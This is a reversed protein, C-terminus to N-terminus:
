HNKKYYEIAKLATDWTGYEEILADIYESQKEGSSNLYSKILVNQEKRQADVASKAKTQSGYYVTLEEMAKEYTGYDEVNEANIWQRITKKARNDMATKINKDKKGNDKFYQYISKYDKGNSGQELLVNYLMDFDYIAGDFLEEEITEAPDNVINTGIDSIRSNAFKEADTLGVKNVDIAKNIAAKADALSFGMKAIEGVTISYSGMKGETYYQAAESVEPIKEVMIARYGSQIKSETYGDAYLQNYIDTFEDKNGDLMSEVMDEFAPNEYDPVEIKEDTNKNFVKNVFDVIPSKRAEQETEMALKVAAKIDEHDFGMDILERCVSYYNSEDGNMLYEAAEAVEPISKAITARYGNTITTKKYGAAILDEYMQSLKASDGAKVVSIMEEYPIGADAGAALLNNYIAYINKKITTGPVGFIDALYGALNSFKEIPTKKDSTLQDWANILRSINTLDMREVDYGEFMSVIDKVYPVMSGADSILNEFVDTVYNEYYKDEDDWKYFSSILSKLLTNLTMALIVSGIKRAAQKKNGNIVDNKTSMLMNIAITPESMFAMEMKMLSNQSRLNGSRQFTSDYVQTHRIVDNFLETVAGFFEESENKYKSQSRIQAKCTNWIASWTIQDMLGPLFFGVQELQERSLSRTEKHKLNEFFMKFREAFSTEGYMMEYMLSTGAMTDYGSNNKIRALASYKMMEEYGKKSAARTKSIGLYSYARGIASPQQIACSISLSVAATKMNRLLSDSLASTPDTRYGGNLDEMLKMIYRDYDEGYREKLLGKVTNAGNKYNYVRMFDNLAPASAAYVSMGTVHDIWVDMFNSIIVPANSGLTVHKTFSSNKAQKSQQKDISSALYNDDVKMPFYYDENFIDYNYMKRSAENGVAALDRSLYEIMADAFQKQEDTLMDSIKEIDAADVKVAINQASDRTLPDKKNKMKEKLKDFFKEDASKLTIGGNLLHSTETLSGTNGKERKAIAYLSMAEFLEIQVRQGHLDFEKSPTDFAWKDFHYKKMISNAAKVAANVIDSQKEETMMVNKYLKNLTGGINEFFYIPMMQNVALTSHLSQLKTGYTISKKEDTALLEDIITQGYEDRTRDLEDSFMKNSNTILGKFHEIASKLLKLEDTTMESITKNGNNTIYRLSNIYEIIEDDVLTNGSSAEVKKMDELRDRMNTLRDHIDKIKLNLKSEPFRDNAFNVLELVDVFAKKFDTPVGMKDARSGNLLKLSNSYLKKLQDVVQRREAGARLEAKKEEIKRYALERYQAVQTDKEKAYEIFRDNQNIRQKKFRELAGYYLAAVRISEKTGYLDNVATAITYYLEGGLIRAAEASSMGMEGSDYMNRVRVSTADLFAAINEFQESPSSTEPFFDPYNNNLEDYFEDIDRVSESRQNPDTTIHFRRNALAAVQRIDETGMDLRNVYFKRKMIDKRLDKYETNLSDDRVDSKEIVQKAISFCAEQLSNVDPNEQRIYDVLAELRDALDKRSMNSNYRKLFAGATKQFAAKSLERGQVIKHLNETMDEAIDSVEKDFANGEISGIVEVEKLAEDDILYRIDSNKEDFRKSLPIMKGSDDYTVENLKVNNETNKYIENSNGNDYGFEHISNGDTFLYKAPVKNEIIRYDDDFMRWGHEEAYEKDIAVWDGNRVRSDKISNPVARYISILTDPSNRAKKIAAIAKQDYSRGDGYYYAARASYISGDGGYCRDIDTICVDYKANPAKHDMRWSTDSDYGRESAKKSLIGSVDEGRMVALRYAEDEVAVNKSKLQENDLLESPIYKYFNGYEPNIKEILQPISIESFLRTNQWQEDTKQNEAVQVKVKNEIKIKGLTISVYLKNPDKVNENFERIHFEVPIIYEGDSFASLLVYDYKLNPNARETGDYKDTHVEIPVANKVVDDFVYLMKAFDYFDTSIDGQKHVSENLSGRSYNFELNINDNSYKKFVDFKEGLTKLIRGAESNYSSKLLIVSKGNLENDGKYQVITIKTKELVDAREVESMGPYIATTKGLSYKPASSVEGDAFVVDERDIDPRINKRKDADYNMRKSVDRAEIEGATKRYSDMPSDKEITSLEQYARERANSYDWFADLLFEDKIQTAAKDYAKYYESDTLGEYMTESNYEAIVDTIDENSISMQEKLRKEAEALKRQSLTEYKANKDYEYFDPNAGAALGEIDQIAHQIEHLLVEKLMNKNLVIDQNIVIENMISDYWGGANGTDKKYTILLDALQPYATFLEHHEILDGLLRPKIDVGEFSDFLQKFENREESTASDEFYIKNLLEQYKRIDPNRSYLGATSIKMKSDDIEFRWKNDYGRFWGTQQRIEESTLEGASELKVAEAYKSLNSNKAKRSAFSYKPAVKEEGDSQATNKNEANEVTSEGTRLMNEVLDVGQQFNNQQKIMERLLGARENSVHADISEKIKDLFRKLADLVKEVLSRDNEIAESVFGTDTFFLEMSDAAIEDMISMDLMNPAVQRYTLKLNGLIESYRDPNKRVNEIVFRKYNKYQEPATEQLHHCLEHTFVTVAQKSFKASLYITGNDYYGKPTFGSVELIPNFQVNVGLKKAIIDIFDVADSNVNLDNVARERNTVGGKKVVRSPNKSEASHADLMGEALAYQKIDAILKSDLKGDFVTQHVDNVNAAGLTGATYYEDFLDRVTQENDETTRNILSELSNNAHDSYIRKSEAETDTIINKEAREKESPLDQVPTESENDAAVTEAEPVSEDQYQRLRQSQEAYGSMAATAWSPEVETNIDEGFYKNYLQSYASNLESMVQSAVPDSEVQRIEQRSVEQNHSIRSIIDSLAAAAYENVGNERLRENVAAQVVESSQSTLEESVANFLRGTAYNSRINAFRQGLSPKQTKVGVAEATEAIAENVASNNYKEETAQEGQAEVTQDVSMGQNGFTSKDYLQQAKGTKIEPSLAEADNILYRTNGFQNIARGTEYTDAFTGSTAVAGMGVGSIGGALFASADESLADLLALSSAERKSKGAAIYNNYAALIDSKDGNVIVDVLRNLMNSATEETGEALFSKGLTGLISKPDKLIADISFKETVGEILGSIVGLSVAKIDSYGKEKGEIISQTAVESGVILSTMGSIWKNVNGGSISAGTSGLAKGLAMNLANDLASTLIDYANVNISFKENGIAHDATIWSDQNSNKVTERITSSILSPYYAANNTDIENGTLTSVVADLSGFAAMPALAVSYLTGIAANVNSKATWDSLGQLLEQTNETKHAAYLSDFDYGKKIWKDRIARADSSASIAAENTSTSDRLQINFNYNELDAKLENDAEIMEAYRGQLVNKYNLLDDILDNEKSQDSKYKDYSAASQGAQGTIVSVAFELGSRMKNKSQTNTKESQSKIYEELEPVTMFYARNDKLWNYEYDDDASRHGYTSDFASLAADIDSVAKGEYKKYMSYDRFHDVNAFQSYFSNYNNVDSSLDILNNYSLDVGNRITSYDDGFVNQNADLLDLLEKAKKKYETISPALRSFNDKYSADYSSSDWSGISGSYDKLLSNYSSAYDDVMSLISNKKKENKIDSFMQKYSSINVDSQVPSDSNGKGAKIDSFMKKYDIM